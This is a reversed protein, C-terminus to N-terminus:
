AGRRRAREVDLRSVGARGFAERLRERERQQERARRLRCINCQRKNKWRYLNDGSLPHGQPCHTKRSNIGSPTEGRLTNEGRTVVELHAPNVCNRVRCLHDIVLGEPIPGRHREYYVRHAYLQRGDVTLKGYGTDQAIYKLWLWCGTAADIEYDPGQLRNNHGRIYWSPQGKVLGAKPRTEAAPPTKRGCGCQCYGHPIDQAQMPPEIEQTAAGANVARPAM